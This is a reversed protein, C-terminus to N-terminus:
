MKGHQRQQQRKRSHVRQRLRQQENWRADNTLNAYNPIAKPYIKAWITEPKADPNERKLSRQLRIAFTVSAIRKRGPRRPRPPLLTRFLRACREKLKRDALFPATDNERIVQAAAAIVKVIEVPVAPEQKRHKKKTSQGAERTGFGLPKTVPEAAVPLVQSEKDSM